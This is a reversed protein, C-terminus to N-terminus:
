KVLVKTAKDGQVKIYLNGAAPNAVRVGQLNYFVAEGKEGDAVIDEVGTSKGTFQLKKTDSQNGAADVVYCEFTGQSAFGFTVANTGASRSVAPTGTLDGTLPDTLIPEKGGDGKDKDAQDQSYKLTEGNLQTGRCKTEYHLTLGEPWSVKVEFYNKTAENSYKDLPVVNDANFGEPVEVVPAQVKIATPIIQFAGDRKHVVAEVVDYTGEKLNLKFQNYGALTSNEGYPIIFKQGSVNSVTLGKFSHYDLVNLNDLDNVDKPTPEVATGTTKESLTFNQIEPLDRFLTYTGELKTFKDGNVLGKPASNGYILMNHGCDDQVYLYNGKQLFVTMNCEVVVQDKDKAKAILDSFCKYILTYTANFTTVDSSEGNVVAIAKVTVDETIEFHGSYKSSETTPTTGDLTYYIEAGEDATITVKNNECSISPPTVANPNAQEVEYFYVNQQKSSSQYPKFRPSSSNFQLMYDSTGGTINIYGNADKLTCASGSKVYSANKSSCSIYPKAPDTANNVKIFWSEGSKVLRILAVSTDTFSIQGNNEAVLLASFFGSSLTTQMAYYSTKSKCGVIVYDTNEKLASVNAVKKAVTASAAGFTLLLVTLTLLLKKM